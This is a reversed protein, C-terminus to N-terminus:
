DTGRETTILRQDGVLHAMGVATIAQACVLGSLVAFQFQAAQAAGAGALLAGVFAGPLTVLGVTRTQDLGPVLAEFVAARCIDTMAQRRTAGISLWAEIEDQRSRIGHLITRGTLTAATMCGGIVIGSVAILDETSRDLVPLGVILGVSVGAGAACALVTARGSGSLHRIRHATTATAVAFMVVVILGAIRWDSVAGRLIVAVLTLQVAARVVAVAAPGWQRVGYWRLVAVAITVLLAAGCALRIWQDM